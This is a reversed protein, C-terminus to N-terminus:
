EYVIRRKEKLYKKAQLYENIIIETTEKLIYMLNMQLELNRVVNDYTLDNGIRKVNMITQVIIQQFFTKVSEDKSLIFQIIEDGKGLKNVIKVLKEDKSKEKLDNDRIKELKLFHKESEVKIKKLIEIEYDINKSIDDIKKLLELNSLDIQELIDYLNYPLEKNCYKKIADEFTMIKSGEIYAGGETADIVELEPNHEIQYEYWEKFLKYITHSKIMKGDIGKVYIDDSTSSDNNGEYTTHTDDSHKKDFTYALDQGILIIPNCKAERAIAFAVTASSQGQNVFEVKEFHNNWWAEIGDHRKSMIIKKGKFEKYIEPWLLGPGTLVIKDDFERDKYYYTYTPEDREISSIADPIVGNKECIRLSADCAIILAKKEAKKLHKINLDLSPGSAVIIAPYGRYKNKIEKISNSTMAAEINKYNNRFGTFIDDLDNGYAMVTNKIKKAIKSIVYNMKDYYLHYNLMEVVQINHVLNYFNIGTQHLIQVDLSEKEDGLIFLFRSDDLIKTLDRTKMALKFIEIDFEIVIVKTESSINERLEDLHYGFGMGFVLILSDKDYNLNQIINGAEKKPDIRSNIWYEKDEFKFKASLDGSETGFLGLENNSNFKMQSIIGALANYKKFNELNKELINNKM